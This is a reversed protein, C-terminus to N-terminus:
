ALRVAHGSNSRNPNTITPRQVGTTRPNHHRIELHTERESDPVRSPAQHATGATVSLPAEILNRCRSGRARLGSVVCHKQRHHRCGIADNGTTARSGLTMPIRAGVEAFSSISPAPASRSTGGSCTMAIQYATERIKPTQSWCRANITNGPSQRRRSQQRNSRCPTTIRRRPPSVSRRHVRYTRALEHLDGITPWLSVSDHEVRRARHLNHDRNHIRAAPRREARDM